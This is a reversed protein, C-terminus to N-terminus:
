EEKRKTKVIWSEIQGTSVPRYSNAVVGVDMQRGLTREESKKHCHGHLHFQGSNSVMLPAHKSEGHFNDGEVYRTMKSADERLIGPLPCHSMTVRENSIYTTASHLVISFGRNLMARVGCDHNGLILIKTGNLESMVDAVVGRKCLGIDGLFYCIGDEPVTANYNNILIRYMHDLNKFPRDDFRLSNAHGVHWDSTFFIKKM